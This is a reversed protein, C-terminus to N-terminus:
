WLEHAIWKGLKVIALALSLTTLITMGTLGIVALTGIIFSATNWGLHHLDHSAAETKLWHYLPQLTKGVFADDTLLAIVFAWPKSVGFLSTIGCLIMAGYIAQGLFKIPVAAVEIAKEKSKEWQATAEEAKQEEHRCHSEISLFGSSRQGGGQWGRPHKICADIGACNDYVCTDFSAATAIALLAVCTM